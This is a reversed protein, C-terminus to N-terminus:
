KGSRKGTTPARPARATPANKAVTGTGGAKRARKAASGATTKARTGPKSIGAPSPSSANKESARAVWPEVYRADAADFLLPEALFQDVAGPTAISLPAGAADGIGEWERLGLRILEATFADGAGDQAAVPDLDPHASLFAAAARRAARVMGRTIPDFRARVGPLLDLWGSPATGLLLM